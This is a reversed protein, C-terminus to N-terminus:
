QFDTFYTVTIPASKSGKVVSGSVPVNYVANPDAKPKPPQNKAPNTNIKKISQNIRDLKASLAKIDTKVSALEEKLEEFQTCSSLVLVMLVMSLKKM